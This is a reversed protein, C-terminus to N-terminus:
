VGDTGTGNRNALKERIIELLDRSQLEQLHLMREWEIVRVNTRERGAALLNQGLTVVYDGSNIGRVGSVQRGQAVLSVPVFHVPVPGFIEPADEEDEFELEMFGGADAVFVGRRGDAPHTYLANNPILVAQESEGYLIDVTVFMGSRLNGEVNPVTIEAETANTVPNLFPSIREVTARLPEEGIAPSTISVTQGTEIYSLMRENLSVRIEMQKIDGVEFLRTSSNVMQGVEVSRFGVYGDIPSRIITNDLENKREELISEAQNRQAKALSLSAEASQVEARLTELDLESELNRVSLAEIRSLRANVQSLSAEAQQVQANAIQLGSEAQKLREQAERDRLRVLVQGATVPDGSQVLIETVPASIEPYIDVQNRARVVGTLREELPLAGTVTQIVEVTPTYGSRDWRNPEGDEEGSSCSSLLIVATILYYGYKKM